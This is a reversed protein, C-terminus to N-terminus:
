LGFASLSNLIDAESDETSQQPESEQINGASVFSVDALEERIINRIDGLYQEYGSEERQVKEKVAEIIFKSWSGSLSQLYELCHKEAPNDLDFRVNIRYTNKM